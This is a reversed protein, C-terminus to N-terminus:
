LLTRLLRCIEEFAKGDDSKIRCLKGVVVNRVSLSCSTKAYDHSGDRYRFLCVFLCVFLCAKFNM